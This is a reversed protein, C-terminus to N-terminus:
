FARLVANNYFTGGQVIIKSGMAEPDRIKIVKKFLMKKNSFVVIRRIHGGVTAGKKQAQKVRSNMFVTCRSGLDVPRRSDM